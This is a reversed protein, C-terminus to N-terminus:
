NEEEYDFGIVTIGEDELLSLLKIFHQKDTDSPIDSLMTEGNYLEEDITFYRLEVPSGGNGVRISMHYEHENVNEYTHIDYGLTEYRSEPTDDADVVINENEQLISAIKEITIVTQKNREHLTVRSFHFEIVSVILVTCIGFILIKKKVKRYDPIEVRTSESVLDIMDAMKYIAENAADAGAALDTVDSGIGFQSHAVQVARAGAIESTADMSMSQLELKRTIEKWRKSFLDIRTIILSVIFIGGYLIGTGAILGLVFVTDDKNHLFVENYIVMLFIIALM